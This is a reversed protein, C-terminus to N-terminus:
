KKNIGFEEKKANSLSTLWFIFPRRIKEIPWGNVTRFVTPKEEKFQTLLDMTAKLNPPSLKNHETLFQSKTTMRMLFAVGHDCTAYLAKLNFKGPSM